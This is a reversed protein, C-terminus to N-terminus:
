SGAEGVRALLAEKDARELADLRRSLMVFHQYLSYHPRDRKGALVERSDELLARTQNAATLKEIM